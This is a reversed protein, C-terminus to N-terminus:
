HWLLGGVMISFLAIASTASSIRSSSSSNWDEKWNWDPKAYYFGESAAPEDGGLPSWNVGPTPVPVNNYDELTLSEDTNNDNFTTGDCCKAQLEKQSSRCQWSSQERRSLLSQSVELCSQTEGTMSVVKVNGNSKLPFNNDGSRCLNCPDKPPDICCTASYLERSTLCIDSGMTIDDEIFVKDELEACSLETGEYFITADSDM